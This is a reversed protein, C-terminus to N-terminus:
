KTFLHLLASASFVPFPMVVIVKM